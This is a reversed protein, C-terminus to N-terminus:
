RVALGVIWVVITLAVSGVINALALQDRMPKDLGHGTDWIFHRLGGLMHHILAWTFGFLIIMGIWSGFIGDVFRFHGRGTAAALLWWTLLAMGAYLAIGTARHVISMVLTLHWHYIQLHPSLPRNAKTDATSM